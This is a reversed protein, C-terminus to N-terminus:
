YSLAKHLLDTIHSAIYQIDPTRNGGPAPINRKAVADARTRPGTSARINPIDPDEKWSYLARLTFSTM